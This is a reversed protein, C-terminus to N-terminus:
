DLTAIRLGREELEAIKRLRFAEEEAVQERAVDKLWEEIDITMDLAEAFYEGFEVLWMCDDDNGDECGKAAEYLVKAALKLWNDAYANSAPVEEPVGGTGYTEMEYKNPDEAWEQAEEPSDDVWAFFKAPPYLSPRDDSYKKPM